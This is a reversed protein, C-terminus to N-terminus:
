SPDKKSLQSIKLKKNAHLAIVLVFLLGLFVLYVARDVINAAVITTADIHHLRQTISLFFERIGIAGPTIAVFLALNATGTYSMIQAINARSGVAHLEIGYVIIMLTVQLLSALGILGIAPMTIRANNASRKRYLVIVGISASAVVVVIVTTQWWPLVGVFLLFVSAVAYFGYYLFTALAYHKIALNHQKKLYAGRFVPGSQGPGFFNILSSYANFLVNEQFRMAKGFMRMSARTVFVVTAFVGSYALLLLVLTSKPLHKLQTLTEPHHSIYYTFAVFTAVIILPALITKIHRKALINMIVLICHVWQM